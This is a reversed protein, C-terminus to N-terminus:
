GRHLRGDFFLQRDNGDVGARELFGSLCSYVSPSIQLRLERVIGVKEKFWVTTRRGGVEPLRTKFDM